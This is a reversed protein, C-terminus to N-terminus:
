GGFFPARWGAKLAQAETCFWREGKNKSIKTRNYWLSWPTHYIREGSKSINGKIPCGEPAQQEAVQWRTKRFDWPTQTNAQWVGLGATKAIQEADLYDDSYKTYAWALGAAVLASNIEIEDTECIAITRGYIDDGKNECVVSKGQTLSILFKTAEEGCAWSSGSVKNCKQGHEPADIGHLRYSVGEIELTDGDVVRLNQASVENACVLALIVSFVRPWKMRQYGLTM